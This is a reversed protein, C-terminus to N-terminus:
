GVGARGQLFLPPPRARTSTDSTTIDERYLYVISDSQGTLSAKPVFHPVRALREKQEMAGVKHHSTIGHIKGWGLGGRFFLPPLLIPAGVQEM